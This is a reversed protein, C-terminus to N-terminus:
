DDDHGWAELTRGLEKELDWVKRSRPQGKVLAEVREGGVSMEGALSMAEEHKQQDVSEMLFGRLAKGVSAWAEEGLAMTLTLADAFYWGRWPKELALRDAQLLVAVTMELSRGWLTSPGAPSFDGLFREKLIRRTQHGLPRRRGDTLAHADDFFERVILDILVLAALRLTRAALRQRRTTTPPLGPTVPTIPTTAPTPHANSAPDSIHAALLHSASPSLLQAVHASLLAHYPAGVPTLADLAGARILLLTDEIGHVLHIADECYVHEFVQLTPDPASPSYPSPIPIFIPPLNRVSTYAPYRPASISIYARIADLRRRFTLLSITSLALMDCRILVVELEPNHTLVGTGGRALIIRRIGSMHLAFSDANCEILKRRLDAWQRLSPGTM